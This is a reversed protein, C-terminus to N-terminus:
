KGVTVTDPGSRASKAENEDACSSEAAGARQRLAICEITLAKDLAVLVPLTAEAANMDALHCDSIKIHGVGVGGDAVTADFPIWRDEIWVETWAHMGFMQEIPLYVLGAVFRSPIGRARCLAALLVAHETCDGRRSRLASSASQFTNRYDKDRITDYTLRAMAPAVHWADRHNSVAQRSLALIEADDSDILQNASLDAAVYTSEPTSKSDPISCKAGDKAPPRFRFVHVDASGDPRMLVRQTSGLPFLGNLVRNKAQSRIRYVASEATHPDGRVATVPVHAVSAIAFSEPAETATAERKTVLYTTQRVAPVEIKVVVGQKGTWVVFPIGMQETWHTTGEIRLLRRKGSLLRTQEWDKAELRTAGVKTVLPVLARIERREGIRMPQRALSQEMAFFGHCENGADISHSRRDKELTMTIEFQDENRVGEIRQIQRGDSVESQFRSVIGSRDEVSSLSVRQVIAEGFRDLRLETRQSWHVQDGEARWQLVVHGIKGTSSHIAYWRQELRSPVPKATEASQAGLPQSGAFVWALSGVAFVLRSVPLSEMM